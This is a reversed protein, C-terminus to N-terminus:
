ADTAGNLLPELHNNARQGANIKQILHRMLVSNAHKAHIYQLAEEYSIADGRDLRKFMADDLRKQAGVLEDQLLDFAMHAATAQSRAQWPDM